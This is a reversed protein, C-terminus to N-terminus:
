QQRQRAPHPGDGHGSGRLAGSRRDLLRAGAGLHPFRRWTGTTLDYLDLEPLGDFPPQVCGVVPQEGCVVPIADLPQTLSPEVTFGPDGFNFGIALQTAAITGKFASRGTPCSPRARASASTSRTRTSSRRMAPSSRIASCTPASRRRAASRCTPRCSGCSTAPGARSRARSRSRSCIATPGPWSSPAMPLSSARHLRLQPRLDAPRHDHTARLSPEDRRRAPRTSGFFLQGSSRTRCSSGSSSRNRDRHGRHRHRGPALDDLTAM